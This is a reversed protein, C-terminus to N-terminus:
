SLRSRRKAAIVLVAGLVLAAIGVLVYSPTNNSGTFALSKAASAGAVTPDQARTISIGAVGVPGSCGTTYANQNGYVYNVSVVGAVTVDFQLSFPGGGVPAPVVHVQAPGPPNSPTFSVNIESAGAPVTGQVTVPGPVTGAATFTCQGPSPPPGGEQAGATLMPLVFLAGLVGLVTLGTLKRVPNRV